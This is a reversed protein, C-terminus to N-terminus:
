PRVNREWLARAVLKEDRQHVIARLLVAFFIGIVAGISNAIVDSLTAFRSSLLASQTFEIAVSLGPCLVLALWWLKTPLMLATLFGLPVFMLVNASFELKNYGFWEPVGTRHLVELFKQISAEYGQDLPSPWMTALLVVIVYAVLALGGLWVRTKSKAPMESVMHQDEAYAVEVGM